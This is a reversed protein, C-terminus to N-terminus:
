CCATWTTAAIPPSTPLSRAGRASCPIAVCVIGTSSRRARSPYARGPASWAPLGTLRPECNSRPRPISRVSCGPSGTPSTRDGLMLLKEAVERPVTQPDITRAEIVKLFKGAWRTPLRALGPRRRPRRRVHQSVGETGRKSHGPRQLRRPRRARSRLANDPSDCALRIVVPICAPRRVEGLVQLLQIKKSRDARDDALLHLAEAMAEPKGQRLGITLSQGSNRALAEALEAPLGALSRGAYAAEFGTMLRKVEEPGTAMALLRDCRNLDPRTGSAAFRRMLRELVTMRAIPLGWVARDEFMALVTEPDTGVKSEIAWWLLLPM